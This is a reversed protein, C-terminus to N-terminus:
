YNLEIGFIIKFVHTDRFHEEKFSSVIMMM